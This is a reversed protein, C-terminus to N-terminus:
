QSHPWPWVSDPTFFCAADGSKVITRYFHDVDVELAIEIPKAASMRPGIPWALDRPTTAEGPVGVYVSSSETQAMCFRYGAGNRYAIRPYQILVNLREYFLYLYVYGQPLNTGSEGGSELELLVQSPEGLVKIINKLAYYSTGSPNKRGLSLGLRHVIGGEDFFSIDITLDSSINKRTEFVPIKKSTTEFYEGRWGLSQFFQLAHNM